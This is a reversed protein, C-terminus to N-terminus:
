ENILTGHATTRFPIRVLSVGVQGAVAIVETENLVVTTVLKLRQTPEDLSVVMESDFGHLLESLQKEHQPSAIGATQYLYYREGGDGQARCIGICASILAALVLSTSRPRSLAM